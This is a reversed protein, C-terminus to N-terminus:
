HKNVFFTLSSIGLAEKVEYPWINCNRKRLILPNPVLLPRVRGEFSLYIQFHSIDIFSDPLSIDKYKNMIELIKEDSSFLPVAESDLGGPFNKNYTPDLKSTVFGSYLPSFTDKLMSLLAGLLQRRRSQLKEELENPDIDEDEDYHPIIDIEVTTLWSKGPSPRVQFYKM